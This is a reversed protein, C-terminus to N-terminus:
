LTPIAALEAESLKMVCIRPFRGAVYTTGVVVLGKDETQTFSALSYPNVFGLYKVGVLDGSADNLMLVIQGSRTTSGYMAYQQGGVEIQKVVVHADPVLEPFPNGGLDVSSSLATSSITADPVLYNDGFNFRSVAFQDGGSSLAASIGGDAQQGQCVGQPTASSLDTFVLSLTYNFFGNFFYNGGQVRGSFFPLQRGTRNFHSIIPDEVGDGAGIDFDQSNTVTGTEDILSIVSRKALHDYSLLVFQNGDLGSYLPYTIGLPLTQTVSGLVDVEVLQVNLTLEDMCFFYFTDGQQHLEMVPHVLNDALFVGSVFEGNKNTRMVYGGVFNSNDKRYSALIIYGGDSAQKIDIPEFSANFRNDDFIKLFSAEPVVEDGSCSTALWLVATVWLWLISNTSRMM